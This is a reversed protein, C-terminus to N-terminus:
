QSLAPPPTPHPSFHPRSCPAISPTTAIEMPKLTIVMYQLYNIIGSHNGISM